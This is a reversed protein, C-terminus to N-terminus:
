PIRWQVGGAPSAGPPAYNLLAGRINSPAVFLLNGDAQAGPALASTSLQASQGPYGAGAAINRGDARIHFDAPSVAVPTSSTNTVLVAL